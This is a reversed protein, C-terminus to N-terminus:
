NRDSIQGAAQRAPKQTPTLNPRVGDPLQIRHEDRESRHHHAGITTQYMGQDHGLSLDLLGTHIAFGEKALRDVHLM